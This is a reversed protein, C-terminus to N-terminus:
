STHIPRSTRNHYWRENICKLEIEAMGSESHSQFRNSIADYEGLYWKAITITLSTTKKERGSLTITVVFAARFTTMSEKM